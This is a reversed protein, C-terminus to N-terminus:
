RAAGKTSGTFEDSSGVDNNDQDTDIQAGLSRLIDLILGVVVLYVGVDFITSTGFSVYGLVPLETSFYASQLAEGGFVLAGAATGVALILGTGLVKGPGIPVAEALEYKGAALYRFVLALGALLGGAFGGGPENHGAFLLYISVVIAPHFLLRVVVEILLSRNSVTLTRGGILWAQRPGRNAADSVHPDPPVARRDLRSRRAGPVRKLDVNRTRVFLLSAIGTAVVVLVAIEGMTDWARIDVLMVNVINRGHGGEYALRPMEATIPAHQRAGLAILGVAGTVVAVSSAIIARRVKKGPEREAYMRAPLRRMVLIFVVLTITEVLAQTLALDPAGHFAFLAVLGFGTVGVLLVAAMRRRARAAGLAAVIMIIAIVPQVPYDWARFSDPWVRGLCAAAGVSLVFVSLITGVYQPLGGRQAFITVKAAFRDIGTIIKWYGRAADFTDPVRDQARAVGARWRFLLLGVAIVLASLGLAPTFGHWLALHEHTQGITEAYPTVMHDVVPAAFGLVLTLVALVGPALLISQPGHHVECRVHRKRTAFAGWFFRVSYAVTLVSGLTVGVLAVWGAPDGAAAGEILSAFVSEKAVFGLTPPLGAMSAVAIASITALVPARKGLGSLQRWDRTGTDHDIIGVVLFLTAKYLAHALLLALGAQASEPTGYSMVITLFGLQSVTGYALVLKLDYQRLSRWAGLLMTWAGFGVLVAHWGPVDSFEPALRAVLYIGAKVMAAAHLYASVPTPAAMAAPLWFHFPVLASKSLAGVLMLLVAATTAPGSLGSDLIVSLSSSGAQVSIMVVGILMVLGGLTTVLLAQLAAGRSERRGTYHGILLYSLVSTIEWFIFMMMIDDATVLGFMTGAFAFLTAAFRGLGPETDTFYRRCYLLVLAGVGTVVLSLVWALADMRFLLSLDLMPIWPLEEVVAGGALVSPGLTLTYVFAAAPVLAIVPFVRTGWRKGLAPILLSAVFFVTLFVIM